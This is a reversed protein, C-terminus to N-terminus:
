DRDQLKREIIQRAIRDFAKEVNEGTKASTYIYPADFRGALESLGQEQVEVDGRLDIKNALITVPVSGCVDVLSEIWDTLDRATQIRTSDCVALGGDAEKFYSKTFLHWLDRQGVIDWIMMTVKTKQGNSSIVMVEKKFVNTGLTYLYRDDFENLVFRRVLSTKGVAGNGILCVKIKSEKEPLKEM